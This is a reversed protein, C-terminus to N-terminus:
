KNANPKAKIEKELDERTTALKFSTIFDVFKKDTDSQRGWRQKYVLITKSMMRENTQSEPLNYFFYATAVSEPIENIGNTILYEKNDWKLSINTRYQSYVWM